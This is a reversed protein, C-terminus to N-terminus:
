NLALPPEASPAILAAAAIARNAYMPISVAETAAPRTVFGRRLTPRAVTTPVSAQATTYMRPVTATKPVTLWSTSTAEVAGNASEAV